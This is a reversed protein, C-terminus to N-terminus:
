YLNESCLGKEWPGGVFYGEHQSVKFGVYGRCLGTDRKM